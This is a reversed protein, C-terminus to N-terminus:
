RCVSWAAELEVYGRLLLWSGPLCLQKGLTFLKGEGRRMVCGRLPLLVCASLWVYYEKDELLM